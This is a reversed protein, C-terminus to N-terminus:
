RSKRRPTKAISDHTDPHSNPDAFAFASKLVSCAGSNDSAIVDVTTEGSSPTPIRAAASIGTSSVTLNEITSLGLRINTQPGFGQGCILILDGPAGKSPQIETLQLGTATDEPVQVILRAVQYLFNFFRREQTGLIFAAAFVVAARTPENGANIATLLVLTILGAIGGSIPRGIHWLNFAPNWGGPGESHDYIGKLSIVIGGLSGFWMAEIALKPAFSPLHSRSIYFAGAAFLIALWALDYGFIGSRTIPRFIRGLFHCLQNLM